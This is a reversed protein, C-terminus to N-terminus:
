LGVPLILSCTGETSVSSLFASREEIAVSFNATGTKEVGEVAFSRPSFLGTPRESDTAHM